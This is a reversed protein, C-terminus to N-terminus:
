IVEKKGIKRWDIRFTKKKFSLSNNMSISLKDDRYFGSVM